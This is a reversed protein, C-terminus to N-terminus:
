ADGSAVLREHLDERLRDIVEQAKTVTKGDIGCDRELVDPLAELTVAVIKLADALTREMTAAPILDGAEQQDRKKERNGKYWDLRDKPPMEDPNKSSKGGNNLHDLVDTLEYYKVAAGNSRLKSDKPELDRLKRALSARDVGLEESLSNITWPRSM